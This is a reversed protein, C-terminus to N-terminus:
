SNRRRRPYVLASYQGAKVYICEEGIFTAIEALKKLLLPIKEKGLFSVEYERCEDSIVARKEKKWVGFSPIVSTTYAGFNRIIFQHLDEELTKDRSVRKKLKRVPLLFVAPRGLDVLIYEKSSLSRWKNSTSKDREM